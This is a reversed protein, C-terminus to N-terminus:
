GVGHKSIACKGFKRECHFISETGGQRLVVMGFRFTGQFSKLWTSIYMGDKRKVMEKGEGIGEAESCVGNTIGIWLRM